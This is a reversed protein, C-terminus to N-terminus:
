DDKAPIPVPVGEPEEFSALSGPLHAPVRDRAMEVETVRWGASTHELRYTQRELRDAYTSEVTIRVATSGPLDREPPFVAHSKRARAAQKLRDGFDALGHESAERELRAKWPSAFASLYATVDGDSASALLREICDSAGETERDRPAEVNVVRSDDAPSPAVTRRLASSVMLGVIAITLFLAFARKM